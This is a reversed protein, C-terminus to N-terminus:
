APLYLLSGGASRIAHEVGTVKYAPFNDMVVVDGTELAPALMQEIFARFVEGTEELATIVEGRVM